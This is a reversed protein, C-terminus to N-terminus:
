LTISIPTHKDVIDYEQKNKNTESDKIDLDDFINKNEINVHVPSKLAKSKIYQNIGERYAKYKINNDDTDKFYKKSAFLSGAFTGTALLGLLMVASAGLTATKTAGVVADAEGTVKNFEEETLIGKGAKARARILNKYISDKEQVKRDIISKIRKDAWNDVAKYALASGLITASVPLAGEFFTKFSFMDVDNNIYATNNKSSSAKKSNMNVDFTNVTNKGIAQYLTEDELEKKDKLYALGRAAGTIAAATLALAGAHFLLGGTRPSTPVLSSFAKPYPVDAGIMLAFPNLFTQLYSPKDDKAKKSMTYEKYM